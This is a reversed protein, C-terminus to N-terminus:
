LSLSLRVDRLVMAEQFITMTENACKAWSFLRGRTLSNFRLDEILTDDFFLRELAQSISVISLPDILLGADVAVEPMSGTNSTLIPTGYQMAEVLPFGFGEYLSPMALFRAHSYLTALLQDSAYGVLKVCEQLGHQQIVKNLDVGGWGKGGAIVLSFQDRCHQSLLAFAKLLRDLNKRPELTGVFLFYPKHIGAARLSSIDLPPPFKSVGLHVVRVKNAFQPFIQAIGEATSQSDAM